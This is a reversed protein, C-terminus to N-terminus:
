GWSDKRVRMLCGSRPKSSESERAVVVHIVEKMIKDEKARVIEKARDSRSIELGVRRGGGM